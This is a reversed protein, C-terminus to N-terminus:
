GETIFAKDTSCGLAAPPEELMRDRGLIRKLQIQKNKKSYFIM